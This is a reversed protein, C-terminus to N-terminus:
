SHPSARLSPWIRLAHPNPACAPTGVRAPVARRSGGGGPRSSGGGPGCRRYHAAMGRWWAFARALLGSEEAEEDGRRMLRAYLRWRRACRRAAHVEWFSMAVRWRAVARQQSDSRPPFRLPPSEPCTPPHNHSLFCATRRRDRGWSLV